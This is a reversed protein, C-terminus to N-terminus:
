SGYACWLLRGQASQENVTSFEFGGVDITGETQLAFLFVPLPDAGDEHFEAEDRFFVDGFAQRVLEPQFEDISGLVRVLPRVAGLDGLDGLTEQFLVLCEDEVLVLFGQAHHHGVREVVVDDIRQLEAAALGHHRAQTDRGLDFVRQLLEEVALVASGSGGAGIHDRGLVEVVDLLQLFEGAFRRHDLENVLEDVLGGLGAGRVDVDFREFALELHTIADVAQQPLNVGWRHLRGRGDDRADLDHGAQVDGLPAQRLVAAEFLADAADLVVQADRGHGRHVALRDDHAQQLAVCHRHVEYREAEVFGLHLRHV